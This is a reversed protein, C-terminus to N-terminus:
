YKNVTKAINILTKSTLDSSKLSIYTGNNVWWITTTGAQDNLITTGKLKNIQVSKGNKLASPLDNVFGKAKTEFLTFSKSQATEYDLTVNNIMQTGSKLVPKANLLKGDKAILLTFNTKKSIESLTLQKEETINPKKNKSPQMKNGLKVGPPSDFQFLKENFKPQYNINIVTESEILNGNPAYQETKLPLYTKQDIWFKKMGNLEPSSASQHKSKLQIVYVKRGALFGNKLLKVKFDKEAHNLISALSQGGFVPSPISTNNSIDVVNKKPNYIWRQHGNFVTIRHIPVENSKNQHTVTEKRYQNPSQYWQQINQQYILDGSTKRVVKKMTSQFSPVHSLTKQTQILIEKAKAENNNFPNTVFAFILAIALVSITLLFKPKKFLKNKKNYNTSRDISQWIEQKVHPDPSSTVHLFQIDELLSETESDINKKPLKGVNNMEDITDSLRNAQEKENM